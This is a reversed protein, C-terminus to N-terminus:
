MQDRRRDRLDRGPGLINRNPCEKQGMGLNQPLRSPGLGSSTIIHLCGWHGVRLKPKEDPVVNGTVSASSEWRHEM